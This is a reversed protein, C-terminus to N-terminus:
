GDGRTLMRHLFAAMQGRTVFANPCFRTTTCGGTIEAAALRNISGEFISTEDDTFFDTTTPPLHVARDIFAAMQGRRIPDNPCFRTATCGGTIGSAALKNISGEFMSTEDDTFFDRNTSPLHLARDIFAAMQGRTVLADPCYRGLGCGGTIGSRALWIIDARFMSDAIDNFPNALSILSGTRDAFSRTGPNHLFSGHARLAAQLDAISVDQVPLMGGAAKVIAAAQGAAEGALMYHPEMRFSAHGVHSFSAAVPVLLNTVEAKRPTIARYPIAYTRYPLSAWGETRLGSDSPSFWRSVPHSDVRYSGVGIVDSKTRQTEVDSQKMVYAGVMRRGERLYLKWPWNANDVFEDKCLGYQALENRIQSPVSTENRLFYLFGRHWDEHQARIADRTAQDGEPWGWNAGPLALSLPGAGNVDYKGNVTTSVTLVWSLRPTAGGSARHAIYAAVVAYDGADYGPPAEFPLRNAPVSSFCLRFNSDQIRDDGSGQPGPPPSTPGPDVGTPVTMFRQTPRVGALSEGYESGAERGLRYSVGAAAMLDGEYTADVFVSSTYTTGSTTQFSAIRSGSKVVSAPVLSQNLVVSVGASALMQNFVIEANRPQFHFRGWSSGERQQVRNFFERTYGGLTSPDGIDTYVLGSSVMGGVHGSPDILTVKAGGRAATVAAIVGGPTAGYVLVDSTHSSARAPTPTAVAALPAALVVALALSLMRRM